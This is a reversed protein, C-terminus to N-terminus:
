EKIHSWYKEEGRIRAENAEEATTYTGLHFRKRDIYIYAVWTGYKTESVGKYGSTNNQGIGKNISQM